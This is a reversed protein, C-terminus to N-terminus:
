CVIHWYGNKDSGERLILGNEKLSKLARYVTKESKGIRSALQANTLYDEEHLTDYVKRESKSLDHRSGQRHKRYFVFQFGTKTNTYEYRVNASKCAKFAREFGTGFSEITSSKFLVNIIKPNLMIPEAANNAFDEPVLGVPFFGPSYIVVRDSFIEVSFSTNAFYCGHAFANVVIERIAVHPIEPVETRRSNGDISIDWDITAMIYSIAEDICEFINGEFHNLRLFTDKTQTAYVATKLLIPNNRSFLVSGANTIKNTKSNYLGLKSLISTADSYEYKIRQSDNGDVIVKKLLTEDVDSIGEESDSKEWESYDKRKRRFLDELEDVSIQRDEDAFREYFKGYASYPPNQGDFSVEIFAKNDDTYKSEITYMISPKIHESIDRSLKRQTDRGIEQGVVDGSDKVGFYLKGSKHKNLISVISIIAEKTESTSKKFEVCETEMGINM